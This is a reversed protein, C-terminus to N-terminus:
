NQFENRLEFNVIEFIQMLDLNPCFQFYWLFAKTLMIFRPGIIM